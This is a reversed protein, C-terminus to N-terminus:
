LKCMVFLLESENVLIGSPKTFLLGSALLQICCDEVLAVIFHATNFHKLYVYITYIYRLKHEHMGICICFFQHMLLALKTVSLADPM